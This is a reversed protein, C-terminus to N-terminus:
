RFKLKGVALAMLYAPVPQEMKFHYSGDSAVGRPNEASMLAMLGEPVKVKAEYTFRIGPGDPCPIWTRAYISESQTYLFPAAKGFTQEPDLWQLATADPGTRYFINLRGTGPRLEISLASGLISDKKRLSFPAPSGDAYLVSDISLGYTDFI